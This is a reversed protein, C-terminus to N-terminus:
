NVHDSGAAGSWTVIPQVRAQRTLSQAEVAHTPCCAAGIAISLPAPFKYNEIRTVLRDIVQRSHKFDADLLAVSLAGADAGVLDADRVEKAIVQGVERVTGEDATVSMGEWERRTEVVVLTLYNQSRMARKLEVELVFEFAEATLLKTGDIYFSGSRM